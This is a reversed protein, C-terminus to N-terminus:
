KSQFHRNFAMLTEHASLAGKEVEEEEVVVGKSLDAILKFIEEFKADIEEKTYSEVVPAGEVVEEAAEVEKEKDEPKDEAAEIEEEKKDEELAVEEEKKDEDENAEVEKEAEVVEVVKGDKVEYWKDEIKFKAGEPLKTEEMKVKKNKMIESAKVDEVKNTPIMETIVNHKYENDTGENEIVEIVTYTKDGVTHTGVPLEIYANLGDANLRQKKDMDELSLGLFGEISFGTQENEVLKNYYDKDTVQAVGFLTGKPVKIGFTSFSKDRIPDEVIWVELLYAPVIEGNDHELNFLGKNTTLKAMKKKHIREIEKETFEVYYEGDEDNRYIEMPIMLPAAIRYKKNDAFTMKSKDLNSSYAMGKIKIAPKSTFATRQWGLDEGESLEEDISIKYKPIKM